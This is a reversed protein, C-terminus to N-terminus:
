KRRRIACEFRAAQQSEDLRIGAANMLEWPDISYVICLSMIKAVHRPLKDMAEYDSLQGLAIGFDRNGLLRAVMMTMEHAARLTLGARSRSVRLLNSFSVRSNRCLPMTSPASHKAVCRGDFQMSQRPRLVLDVLGLVQVERSLCLPWASWPPRNPLLIIHQSGVRKVHCCTLGGSHEVLWLPNDASSGDLVRPSYCRDVRVISGPILRPYVVADHNGIRAFLYRRHAKQLKANWDVHSSGCSTVSRGPTVLVTRETHIKLQLALILKLDFGFVGMWNAFSYGTVESLAVVQCIHPTIGRKQKYLFTVPVFYPTKKGYRIGTVASVQAMTLRAQRLIQKIQEARNKPHREALADTSFEAFHFASKEIPVSLVDGVTASASM